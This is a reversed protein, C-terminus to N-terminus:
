TQAANAIERLYDKAAEVWETQKALLDDAPLSATGTSGKPNMKDKRTKDDAILGALRQYYRIGADRRGLGSAEDVVKEFWLTGGDVDLRGLQMTRDGGTGQLLFTSKTLRPRAGVEAELSAVLQKLRAAGEPVKAGFTEYLREESITTPMPRPPSQTSTGMAGGPIPDDSRVTIRDDDFSVVGRSIMQTKALVRPQVLYGGTPSKFVAVEVLGLTFHMGAHQQLFESIQEVGERIGDGVILLLFRGRKLNLSVADIFSAEDSGDIEAGARVYLRDTKKFGNAPTAKQIAGEFAEYSLRPLEKAYDLIQGVVERRAQPNRWLKCEVIVIDGRPSVLLIDAPGAKTEFELCIPLAGELAPEIEAIPLAQPHSALM